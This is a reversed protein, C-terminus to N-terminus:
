IGNTNQTEERIAELGLKLVNEGHVFFGNSVKYKEITSAVGGVENHFWTVRSCGIPEFGSVCVFLCLCVRIKSRTSKTYIIYSLKYCCMAKSAYKVIKWNQCQLVQLFRHFIKRKLVLHKRRLKLFAIPLQEVINHLLDQQSLVHSQPVGWFPGPVLSRPFCRASPYWGGGPASLCVGTVGTNEGDNPHPLYFCFVDNLLLLYPFSSQDWYCCLVHGYYQYLWM